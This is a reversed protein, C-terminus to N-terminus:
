KGSIADNVALMIGVSTMTAGGTVDVYAKDKEIINRVTEDKARDSFGPTEWDELIEVDKIDGDEMTVRVVIPVTSKGEGKLASTVGIVKCGTEDPLTFNLNTRLLKYAEAGAFSLNDGLTKRAEAPTMLDRNKFRKKNFM